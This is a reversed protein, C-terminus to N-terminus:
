NKRRLRQEEQWNPLPPVLRHTHVDSALKDKELLDVMWKKITHVNERLPTFDKMELIIDRLNNVFQRQLSRSLKKATTGDLAECYLFICSSDYQGDNANM